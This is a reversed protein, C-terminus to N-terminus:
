FCPSMRPPPPHLTTRCGDPTPEYGLRLLLDAATQKFLRVHDPTFADRWAGTRGERFTKSTAPNIAAHLRAVAATRPLTLQGAAAELRTLLRDIVSRPDAILDEFRIAMVDTRDLWGLYPEFRARIDPFEIDIDPRGLISAAIREDMTHLTEAYHRHHVHRPDMFTVYHAHSVVVDRPDRYIFLNLVGPRCLAARNEPTAHLHGGAVDGPRLADLEARLEDASRKRGTASEYTLVFTKSQTYPGVEPLARLIQLLLNTGSKPFSNAFVIPVTGPSASSTDASQASKASSHSLECVRKGIQTMQAIQPHNRDRATSAQIPLPEPLGYVSRITRTVDTHVGRKIFLCDHQSEFTGHPPFQLVLDFGLADLHDAVEPLLAIGQYLPVVFLELHLGVCHERLFCGAGKLIPLEAGQADIKLFEFPEPLDSEALVDDLRRCAVRETRVLRSRDFWTEAARRPGRLRLTDYHARVYDVNQLFLSSGSGNGGAYVHFDRVANSEWLATDLSIRDPRHEISLSRFPSLRRRSPQQSSPADASSSLQERPQLQVNASGTGMEADRPEFALIRSICDPRSHWPEPLGGASGVDILNVRALPPQPPAGAPAFRRKVNRILNDFLGTM